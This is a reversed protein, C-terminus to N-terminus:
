PAQWAAMVNTRYLEKAMAGKCVVFGSGHLTKYIPLKFHGASPTCQAIYWIAQMQPSQARAISTISEFHHIKFSSHSLATTFQLLILEGRNGDTRTIGFADISLSSKKRPKYLVGPELDFEYEQVNMLSSPAACEHVSKVSSLLLTTTHVTHMAPM